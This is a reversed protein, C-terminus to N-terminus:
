PWTRQSLVLRYGDPDEITVGNADWYPNHAAVQTGGHQQLRAVLERDMQQGLYLVLLDEVTPHPTVQPDHVLELHWAATPWGVAMLSNSQGRWLVDLGLGTVYFREVAPLDVTPRAIRAHAPPPPTSTM